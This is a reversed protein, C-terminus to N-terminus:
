SLTRCNSLFVFELRPPDFAPQNRFCACFKYTCHLFHQVDILPGIVRLPRYNAQVFGRLLQDPFTALGKSVTLPDFMNIIFIATFPRSVQIHDNLWKAAAAFHMDPRLMRGLIPCSFHSVNHLFHIGTCRLDGQDLVIETRM